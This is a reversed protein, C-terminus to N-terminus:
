WLSEAMSVVVPIPGFHSGKKRKKGIYQRIIYVCIPPPLFASVAYVRKGEFKEIREFRQSEPNYGSPYSNPLYFFTTGSPASILEGKKPLHAEGLLSASM